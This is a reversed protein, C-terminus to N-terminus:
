TRTNGDTDASGPPAPTDSRRNARGSAPCSSRTFPGGNRPPWAFPLRKGIRGEGRGEGPPLLLITALRNVTKATATQRVVSYTEGEGKPLPGPHPDPHRM